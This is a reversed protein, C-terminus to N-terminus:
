LVVTQTLQPSTNQATYSSSGGKDGYSAFAGSLSPTASFSPTTLSYGTSEYTYSNYTGTGSGDTKIKFVMVSKPTTDVQALGVIVNGQAKLGKGRINVGSRIIRRQWVINGSSDLKMIGVCNNATQDSYQVYVNNVADVCVGTPYSASRLTKHWQNTGSSNWKSVVFHFTGMNEATNGTAYVNESSDITVATMEEAIYSSYYETGWATTSLPVSGNNTKSWKVIWARNSNRMGAGYVYDGYNTIDRCADFQGTGDNWYSGTTISGVKSGDAINLHQM